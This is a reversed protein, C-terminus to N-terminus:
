HVYLESLPFIENRSKRTRSADFDRLVTSHGNELSISTRLIKSLSFIKMRFKHTRLTDFDSSVRLVTSYGNEM